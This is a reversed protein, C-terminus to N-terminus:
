GLSVFQRLAIAEVAVKGLAQALGPWAPHVELLARVQARLRDEADLIHVLEAMSVEELDEDCGLERVATVLLWHNM